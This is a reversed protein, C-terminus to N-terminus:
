KSKQNPNKIEWMRCLNDFFETFEHESMWRAIEQIFICDTIFKEGCTENLYALKDFRTM